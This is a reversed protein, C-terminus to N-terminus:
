SEHSKEEESLQPNPKRLVKKETLFGIKGGKALFPM